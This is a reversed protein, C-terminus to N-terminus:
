VAKIFNIDYVQATETSPRIVVQRPELFGACYIASYRRIYFQARQISKILLFDTTKVTHEAVPVSYLRCNISPIAENRPIQAIFPAIQDPELIHLNELNDKPRDSPTAKHWYTILRSAMGVNIIFPSAESTHEVVIVGGRRGSLSRLDKLFPSVAAEGTEGVDYEMRFTVLLKRNLFPTPDFKPHHFTEFDTLNPEILVMNLAPDSHQLNLDLRSDKSVFLKSYYKPSEFNMDKWTRMTHHEGNRQENVDTFKIRRDSKDLILPVHSIREPDWIVGWM